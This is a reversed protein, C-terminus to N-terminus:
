QKGIRCKGEFYKYDVRATKQVSPSTDKRYMLNRCFSAASEYDGKASLISRRRQKQTDTKNWILPRHQRQKKM